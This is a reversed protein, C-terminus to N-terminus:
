WTVPIAAVLLVASAEDPSGPTSRIVRKALGVSKARETFLKSQEQQDLHAFCWGCPYSSYIGPNIHNRRSELTLYLLSQPCAETRELLEM